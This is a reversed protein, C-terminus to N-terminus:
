KNNNITNSQEKSKILIVKKIGHFFISGLSNGLLILCLIGLVKSSMVGAACFYYIDAIVHECGLLVFASVAMILGVVRVIPALNSKYIDVALYVFIGCLFALFLLSYWTDSTRAQCLTILTTKVQSFVRVNQTILGMMICGVINGSLSEVLELSYKWNKNDLVYAIKGTYLFLSMSCIFLLGLSFMFAGVISQLSGNAPSNSLLFVNVLGGLSILIGALFGSLINQLHKM